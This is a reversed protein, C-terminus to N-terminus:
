GRKRPPDDEDEEVELIAASGSKVADRLAVLTDYSTSVFTGGTKAGPRTVVYNGLAKLRRGRTDRPVGWSELAAATPFVNSHKGNMQICLDLFTLVRLQTPSYRDLGGYNTDITEGDPDAAASAAVDEKPILEVLVVPNGDSTHRVLTRGIRETNIRATKTRIEDARAYMEEANANAEITKAEADAEAQVSIRKASAEGVKKIQLIATVGIAIMILLPVIVCGWDWVSRQLEQQDQYEVIATATGSARTGEVEATKTASVSTPTGNVIATATLATSQAATSTANDATLAFALRTGEDSLANQTLQRDATATAQQHLVAQTEALRTLDDNTLVAQATQGNIDSANSVMPTDVGSSQALMGVIFVVIIALGM